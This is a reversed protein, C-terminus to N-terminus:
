LVLFCIGMQLAFCMQVKQFIASQQMPDQLPQSPIQSSDTIFSLFCASYIDPTLALYKDEEDHDVISSTALIKAKSCSICYVMNCGGTRKFGCCYYAYIGDKPLTKDDGVWRPYVIQLNCESCYTYKQETIDVVKGEADKMQNKDEEGEIIELAGMVHNAGGEAICDFEAERAKKPDEGFQNLLECYRVM